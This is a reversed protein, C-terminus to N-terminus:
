GNKLSGVWGKGDHFDVITKGDPHLAAMYGDLVKEPTGGSAAIAWTANESTYYITSGDASWFPRTCARTCHTLQAADGSGVVRTFIQDLGHVPMVYAISKSDPSWEPEIEQAEDRAISTFKYKSVDPQAPPALWAVLFAALALGAILSVAAALA